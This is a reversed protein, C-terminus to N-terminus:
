RWDLPLWLLVVVDWVLHAALAPILSGSAARLTAWAIGCLLAVVVLVPSGIPAHALAYALAALPVGAWPAVRRALAAQVVGRWVLEEGLIIPALALAAITVSPARFAAYLAATDTAISPAIRVLVPYIVYTAVAMAGGAAAGLLLLRPSPQLIRRAAARDFLLVAVGLAVAAGGIALWIGLLAASVAAVVWVVICAIALSAASIPVSADRSVDGNM